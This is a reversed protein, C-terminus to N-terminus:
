IDTSKFITNASIADFGDKRHISSPFLKTKNSPLIERHVFEIYSKSINESYDSKTSCQTLHGDSSIQFKEKSFSSNMKLNIDKEMNEIIEDFNDPHTSLDIAIHNIDNKWFYTWALYQDYELLKNYTDINKNDDNIKSILDKPLNDLQVSSLFIRPFYSHKYWFATKPFDPNETPLKIEDMLYYDSDLLLKQLPEVNDLQRYAIHDIKPMIYPYKDNLYKICKNATPTEAYYKQFGSLLFKKM